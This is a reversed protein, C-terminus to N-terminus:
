NSSAKRGMEISVIGYRRSVLVLPCFIILLFFLLCIFVFLVFVCCACSPFRWHFRAPVYLSFYITFSKYIVCTKLAVNLFFLTATEVSSRPSNESFYTLPWSLLSRVSSMCQAILSAAVSSSWELGHCVSRCQRDNNRRWKDASLRHGNKCCHKSNWIFRKCIVVDANNNMRFYKNEGTTTTCLMVCLVVNRSHCSALNETYFCSTKQHYVIICM